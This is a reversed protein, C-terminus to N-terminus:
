GLFGNRAFLSGSAGGCTTQLIYSLTPACHFHVASHANASRQGSKSRVGVGRGQNPRNERDLRGKVILLDITQLKQMNVCRYGSVMSKAGKQPGFPASKKDFPWKKEPKKVRFCSRFGPRM